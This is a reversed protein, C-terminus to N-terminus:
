VRGKTRSYIRATNYLDIKGDECVLIFNCDSIFNITRLKLLRKDENESSFYDLLDDIIFKLLHSEEKTNYYTTNEKYELTAVSYDCGGHYSSIILIKM